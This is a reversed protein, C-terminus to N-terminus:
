SVHKKFDIVYAAGDFSILTGTVDQKVHFTKSVKSADWPTGAPLKNQATVVILRIPLSESQALRLHESLLDKGLRNGQWQSLDDTYRLTAKDPRSFNSAWGSVVIAGDPARASAAWMPNVLTAGYKAFCETFSPAPM